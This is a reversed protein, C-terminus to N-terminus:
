GHSRNSAKVTRGRDHNSRKKRCKGHRRVKGAPCRSTKPPTANGAGSFSSSAPTSDNPAVPPALCAEGECPPPVFGPEPFGGGVRADYADRNGDTDWGVLQDRTTFFVDSGTPTAEILFSGGDGDGASILRLQGDYEYVDALGNSDATVLGRSTEFYVDGGDSVNQPMHNVAQLRYRQFAVEGQAPRADDPCTVCGLSGEVADYRYIEESGENDFGALSATSIFALYRGDRSWRAQRNISLNRVGVAPAAWIRTDSQSSDLTAVYSLQPSAGTDDWLYLKPQSGSPADAVISNDAVFYVRRLDESAAVMGACKAASPGGNVAAGQPAEPNQDESVLTLREGAPRAFDYMYLDNTSDSDVDVLANETTFLVREGHAAAATQFNAGKGTVGGPLTRESASILTTSIANERAYLDKDGALATFFLRSGDDSVAHEFNCLMANGNIAPGGVSGEIPEGKPLVSALRVNGNESEYACRDGLDGIGSCPSDATLPYTSDIALMGFDHSGWVFGEDNTISSLTGNALTFSKTEYDRVYQNFLTGAAPDYPGFRTGDFWVLLGKSLDPSWGQYGSSAFTFVGNPLAVGETTWGTPTRTALYPSGEASLSTPQGAFSGRSTFTLRNGDIAAMSRGLEIDAGEKAVPSVQEYARNDPLAIATGSAAMLIACWVTAFLFTFFAFSLATHNRQGVLERKVDNGKAYRLPLNGIRVEQAHLM